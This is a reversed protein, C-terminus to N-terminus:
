TGHACLRRHASLVSTIAIGTLLTALIPGFPHYAWAESLMGRLSCSVSRSLGYGWCPAGTTPRFLRLPVGLGHPPHFAALALVPRAATVSTRNLLTHPAKLARGGPRAITSGGVADALTAMHTSM